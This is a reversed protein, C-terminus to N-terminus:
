RVRPGYDGCSKCIQSAWNRLRLQWNVQEQDSVPARKRYRGCYCRTAQQRTKSGYLLLYSELPFFPSLFTWLFASLLRSSRPMSPSPPPATVDCWSRVSRLYSSQVVETWFSRLRHCKELFDAAGIVGHQLAVAAKGTQIRRLHCHAM